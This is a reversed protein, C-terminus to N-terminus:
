YISISILELYGSSDNSYIETTEFNNCKIDIM